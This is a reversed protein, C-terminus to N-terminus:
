NNNKLFKITKDWSVKQFNANGELTGGANLVLRPMVKVSNTLGAPIIYPVPFPHGANEFALFSYNYKHNYKRLTNMIEACGDYSNWINDKEGAVLLIDAKINEVKIRADEKNSAIDLETKYTYAYGFPENKIICELMNALLTRNRLRIFPVSEGKYSWTSVNKYSLGQFCYAHPPVAVVKKVIDYRSALLLALEGGKSTGHVYIDSGKTITNNKLWQFAKEFYELPIEALKKPLGKENFYALSLVNFRHSALQAAVLSLADGNGDSGGLLLITKNNSNESYFLEGIFEDKIKLTKIEPAKFLRELKVSVRENECEAVIDIFLSNNISINKVIDKFQGSTVKMSAILGMSDTFDYTGSDPKQKSLEVNGNSDATFFAFSEFKVNHAWPLCMAAKVKVKGFAPLESVKIDIKEDCLAVLPEVCMKM